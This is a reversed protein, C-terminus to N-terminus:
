ISAPASPVTRVRDSVDGPLQKRLRMVHNHLSATASRLARRGWLIEALQGPSVVSGVDLLLAALVTRPMEGGLENWGCERHVRIMGHSTFWM